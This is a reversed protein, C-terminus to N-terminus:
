FGVSLCHGIKCVSFGLVKSQIDSHSANAAFACIRQSKRSFTANKSIFSEGTRVVVTVSADVYKATAVVDCM